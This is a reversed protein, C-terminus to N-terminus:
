LIRGHTMNIHRQNESFPPPTDYIVLISCKFWIKYSIKEGEESSEPALTAAIPFSPEARREREQRGIEGCQIKDVRRNWTSEGVGHARPRVSLSRKIAGKSWRYPLPKGSAKCADTASAHPMIWNHFTKIRTSKVRLVHRVFVRSTFGPKRTRREAGSAGCRTHACNNVATHTELM